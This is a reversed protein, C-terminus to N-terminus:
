PLFPFRPFLFSYSGPKQENRTERWESGSEGGRMLTSAFFIPGSSAVKTTAFLM